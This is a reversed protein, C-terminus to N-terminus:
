IHTDGSILLSSQTIWIASPFSKQKCLPCEKEDFKNAKRMLEFKDIESPVGSYIDLVNPNAIILQCGCNDCKRRELHVRQFENMKPTYFVYPLAFNSITFGLGMSIENFKKHVQYDKSELISLIKGSFEFVKYKRETFLIEWERSELFYIDQGDIKNVNM